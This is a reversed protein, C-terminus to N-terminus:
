VVERHRFTLVVEINRCHIYSNQRLQELSQELTIASHGIQIRELHPLNKILTLIGEVTLQTNDINLCRLNKLKSLSEVAYDTIEEDDRLDLEEVQQILPCLRHIYPDTIPCKCIGIAKWDKKLDVFALFKDFFDSREEIEDMPIPTFSLSSLNPFRKTILLLSEVSVPMRYFELGKLGNFKTLFAMIQNHHLVEKFSETPNHFTLQSISTSLESTIEFANPLENFDTETHAWISLHNLPKFYLKLKERNVWIKGNTLNAIHPAFVRIKNIFKEYHLSALNFDSLDIIEVKSVIIIIQKILQSATESDWYDNIQFKVPLINKLVLTKLDEQYDLQLMKILITIELPFPRNIVIRPQCGLHNLIQKIILNLVEKREPGHITKLKRLLVALAPVNLQELEKRSQKIIKQNGIFCGVRYLEIWDLEEIKVKEPREILGLEYALTPALREAIPIFNHILKPAILKALTIPVRCFLIGGFNLTSSPIEQSSSHPETISVTDETSIKKIDLDQSYLYNQYSVANVPNVTKRQVYEIKITHGPLILTLPGISNASNVM